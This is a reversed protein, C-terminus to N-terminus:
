LHTKLTQKCDPRRVVEGVTIIYLTCKYRSILEFKLSKNKNNNNNNTKQESSM